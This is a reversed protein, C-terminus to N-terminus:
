TTGMSQMLVLGVPLAATASDIRDLVGGHGPLLRGSDKAGAQRKLGSELLDGVVGLACLLLTGALYPLWVLGQVRARLDPDFSAWIIAYIVCGVAGGAVGEWTKGPSISPALKRRGMARGALYAATDSVWILGLIMLVQGPPLVALAVGAPVLVVVGVAMGAGIPAPKIGRALLAPAAVIWFLGALACIWPALQANAALAYSATASALAFAAAAVGKLRILKAWEGAALSVVIAALAAFWGRELWFLAAIFASLLVTATLVRTLFL